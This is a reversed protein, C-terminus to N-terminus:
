VLDPTWGALMAPDVRYVAQLREATLAVAPAGDAVIRGEDLLVVRECFRAALGIDHTVAIVLRGAAAAGRLVTMVHLAHFPDLSATPEDALLVPTEAALVRALLVRAREGGSLTDTVRDALEVVGAAAMAADVAAADASALRSLPGLMPLRGLEVLRRVSLPWHIVQGQPLYGLTLARERGSMRDIPRGRWTVEGARPTLLRCLARLLTSKGAGNPGLLGVLEGACGYLDVGRLVPRGGLDVAVSRACLESV